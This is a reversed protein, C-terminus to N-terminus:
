EGAPKTHNCDALALCIIALAIQPIPSSVKAGHGVFWSRKDNHTPFVTLDPSIIGLVGAANEGDPAIAGFAGIVQPSNLGYRKILYAFMAAALPAEVKIDYDKHPILDCLLHSAAGSVFSLWPKRVGAGIAAGVAAHVSVMM